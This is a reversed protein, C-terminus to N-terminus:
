EEGAGTLIHYREADELDRGGALEAAPIAPRASAAHQWRDPHGGKRYREAIRSHEWAVPLADSNGDRREFDELDTEVDPRRIKEVFHKVLLPIDELRERLSSAAIPFVDIRYYLDMRFQREAVLGALDQNTAAM